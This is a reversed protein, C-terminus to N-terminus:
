DSAVATFSWTADDRLTKGYTDAVTKKVTVQYSTGNVLTVDVTADVELGVVDIATATVVESSNVDTVTIDGPQISTPDIPTNFTFQVEALTGPPKMDGDAPSKPSLTLPETHFLPVPSPQTLSRGEHDKVASAITVSCDSDSPLPRAPGTGDPIASSKGADAPGSASEM